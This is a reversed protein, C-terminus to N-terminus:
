PKVTRFFKAEGTEFDYHGILWQERPFPAADCWHPGSQGPVLTPGNQDVDLKTWGHKGVEDFLVRKGDNLEICRAKFEEFSMKETTM